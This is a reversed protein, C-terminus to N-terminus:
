RQRLRRRAALGLLGLGSLVLTTPEPVATQTAVTVPLSADIAEVFPQNAFQLGHFENALNTTIIIDAVGPALTAFHLTILLLPEAVGPEIGVGNQGVAYALVNTGSASTVPDFLPGSTAGTFSVRTPDSVSVNFGVSILFDTSPDRGDFVNTAQLVVDFAGSVVGPTSFSITAAAAPSGFTALMATLLLLVRMRIKM